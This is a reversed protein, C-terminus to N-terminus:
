PTDVAPALPFFAMSLQMVRDPKTAEEVRKQIQRRCERLMERIDSFARGDVALSLTSMDRAERPFRDLSERALSLIQKQFSRVAEAKDDGEATLHAEALVLRESSARKVLGLELLLDLAAQVDSESVSPQLRSALERPNSRGEVVELLCRVAVVWWDKFFSLEKEQLKRREVDRLAMAKELIERKARGVRERSYAALMLFYEAARGTLGLFELAHPQCRAPLHLDKQLIRFLYSGDMELREAMMRYSFLPLAAKRDDYADKLLDRYDLYEFVSRM